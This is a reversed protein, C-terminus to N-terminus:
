PQMPAVTSTVPTSIDLMVLYIDMYGATAASLVDSTPTLNVQLLQAANSNFETNIGHKDFCAATFISNAATVATVTTSTGVSATVAGLSGGTFATGVNMRSFLITGAQPIGFQTPNFPNGGPDTTLLLAHAGATTFPILDTFTITFKAITVLGGLGSAIYSLQM